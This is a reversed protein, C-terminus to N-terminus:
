NSKRHYRDKLGYLEIAPLRSIIVFLNAIFPQTLRAPAAAIAIESHVSDAPATALPPM